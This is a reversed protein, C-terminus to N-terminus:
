DSVAEEDSTSNSDTDGVFIRVTGGQAKSMRREQERFHGVNHVHVRDKRRIMFLLQLAGVVAVLASVWWALPTFNLRIGVGYLLGSIPSALTRCAAGVSAALGNIRGLSSPGPSASKILILLLPYALISFLNRVTLAAYIGPYM